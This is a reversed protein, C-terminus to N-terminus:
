SSDLTTNRRSVNKQIIRHKTADRFMRKFLGINHQMEFCEHETRNALRSRKCLGINHQMEFCEKSYDLTTNCRSVNKQIIWHEKSYDFTTNCRSVNKQIIWHQTADRFMWTRYQPHLPNHPLKYQRQVNRRACLCFCRNVSRKGMTKSAEKWCMNAYLQTYVNNTRATHGKGEKWKCTETITQYHTQHAKPISFMYLWVKCQLLKSAWKGIKLTKLCNNWYKQETDISQEEIQQNRKERGTNENDFSLLSTPKTTGPLTKMILHHCIQQSRLKQWHTTMNQIYLIAFLTSWKTHM